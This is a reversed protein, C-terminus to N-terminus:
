ESTVRLVEELTTTGLTVKRVGDYVMTTMGEKLAIARIDDANKHAMIAERITESVMLVEFVGIRGYYGSQHCVHCGKGKYLTLGKSSRKGTLERLYGKVQQNRELLQETVADLANKQICNSCIKRVLRQAVVINVTSAILFDEIGMDQLRPFATAADNTHLTSLVLHGTLAANVAISATESDRIEGVMIIDPDQRVISRLGRAFTLGAKENVQIQNVGEMDYEVPDEITTINVERENLVKLISYLTTSKGSGTPGTVLIMGWPRKIMDSIKQYDSEPFGLNALSFINSRDALLRMVAKEAHTTPIVSLRIEVEEGWQTKHRIKGDQAVRREDTALRALVKLRTMLNDHLRVPLKAIDHLLGDQRFRVLTYQEEPEIHIDSAGGQYAYNMITDILEIATTDIGEDGSPARKVITDIAEKPDKAFLYMHAQIDTPTAYVFEVEKRLLKELLSRELLNDPQSTAITVTSNDAKIPLVRRSRAFVEPLSQIVENPAHARRLDVFPVHFWESMASGYAKDQLVGRSLLVGDIGIEDAEKSEKASQFDDESVTKTKVLAEYLQQATLPM